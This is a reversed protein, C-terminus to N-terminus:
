PAASGTCQGEGVGAVGRSLLVLWAWLDDASADGPDLKGLSGMLLEEKSLTSDGNTDAAALPGFAVGPAASIASDHLFREAHLNIVLRTTGGETIETSVECAGYAVPADFTWDFSKRTDGQRALEWGTNSGKAPRVEIPKTKNPM